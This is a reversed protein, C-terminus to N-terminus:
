NLDCFLKDGNDGNSWNQLGITTWHLLVIGVKPFPIPSGVSAVVSPLTRAGPSCHQFIFRSLGALRPSFVKAM